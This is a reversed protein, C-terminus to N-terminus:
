NKDGNHLTKREKNQVRHPTRVLTQIDHSMTALAYTKKRRKTSISNLKWIHNASGSGLLATHSGGEESSTELVLFSSTSLFVKKCNWEHNARVLSDTGHQQQKFILWRASFPLFFSIKRAFISSSLTFYVNLHVCANINSSPSHRSIIARVCLMYRRQARKHQSEFIGSLWDKRDCIISMNWKKKVEVKLIKIKNLMTQM